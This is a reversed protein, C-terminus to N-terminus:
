AADFDGKSRPPGVTPAERAVMTLRRDPWQTGSDARSRVKVDSDVYYRPSWSTLDASPGRRVGPSREDCFRADFRGVIVRSGRTAGGPMPSRFRPRCPMIGPSM